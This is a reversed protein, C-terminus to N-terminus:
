EEDQETGDSDYFVDDDLGGDDPESNNEKEETEAPQDQQDQTAKRKAEDEM